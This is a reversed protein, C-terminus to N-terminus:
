SPPGPEGRLLSERLDEDVPRPGIWVGFLATGFSVTGRFQDKKATSTIVVGSDPTFTATLGQGQRMSPIWRAFAEIEPRVKPADSGASREIGKRFAGAGEDSSVDRKMVLMCAKPRDVRLIETASRTRAAVYLGAVYVKVNFVTVRRIGVGNLFLPANGVTVQDAFRVGAVEAALAGVSLLVLPLAALRLLAARARQQHM